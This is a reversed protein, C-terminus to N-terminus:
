ALADRRSLALARPASDVCWAEIKAQLAVAPTSDGMPSRAMEASLERMRQTVPALRLDAPTALVPRLAEAAGDPSRLAIHAAAQSIHMQAATGYSHAPQSALADSAERLAAAPDGTRLQVASAYNARRLEPCSFLGDIDDVGTM